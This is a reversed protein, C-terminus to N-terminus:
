CKYCSRSIVVFPTPVARGSPEAGKEREAIRYASQGLEVTARQYPIIDAVKHLFAPDSSWSSSNVVEGFGPYKPGWGKSLAALAVEPIRALNPKARLLRLWSRECSSGDDSQMAHVLRPVFERQLADSLVEFCKCFLLGNGSSCLLQADVIDPDRRMNWPLYSMHNRPPGTRHLELWLSKDLSESPIRHFLADAGPEGSCLVPVWNLLVQRDSLLVLIPFRIVVGELWEFADDPRAHRAWALVARGNTSIVNPALNLASCPCRPNKPLGIWFDLDHSWTPDIRNRLATAPALACSLVMQANIERDEAVDTPLTPLVAALEDLCFQPEDISQSTRLLELVLAKSGRTEAKFPELYTSLPDHEMAVQWRRSVCWPEATDELHAIGVYVGLFALAVELSNRLRPSLASYRVPCIHRLEARVGERLGDALRLAFEMNDWLPHPCGRPREFLAKEVM